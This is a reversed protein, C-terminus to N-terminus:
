SEAKQKQECAAARPTQPPFDCFWQERKIGSPFAGTRIVRKEQM